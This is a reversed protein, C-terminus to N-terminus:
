AICIEIMLNFNAFKVYVNCGRGGFYFGPYTGSTYYLLQTRHGYAYIFFLLLIEEEIKENTQKLSENTQRNDEKILEQRKYM